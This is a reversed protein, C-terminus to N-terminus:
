SSRRDTWGGIWTPRRRGAASAPRGVVARARGRASSGGAGPPVPRPRCRPALDPRLKRPWARPPDGRAPARGPLERGLPPLNAARMAAFLGVLEYPDDDRHGLREVWRDQDYGVIDPEDEAIIWRIRASVITESDLLHGLCEIVSWEGPEPRERLRDGAERIVERMHATTAAAVAAPDDVGLWALLQARYADPEGVPDASVDPRVAAPM